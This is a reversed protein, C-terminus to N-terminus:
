GVKKSFIARSINYDMSKMFRIYYGVARNTALVIEKFGNNKAQKELLEMSIKSINKHRAEPCLYGQNIELTQQVGMVIFYGILKDQRYIGVLESTEPPMEYNKSKKQYDVFWTQIKSFEVPALTIM